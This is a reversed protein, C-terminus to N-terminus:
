SGGADTRIYLAYSYFHKLRSPLLRSLLTGSDEANYPGGLLVFEEGGVCLNEPMPNESKKRPFLISTHQPHIYYRTWVGFQREFGKLEAASCRGGGHGDSEIYRTRGQGFPKGLVVFSPTQMFKFAVSERSSSANLSPIQGNLMVRARSADAGSWAIETAILGYVLFWSLYISTILVTIQKHAELTLQRFPVLRAIFRYDSFSLWAVPIFAIYTYDSSRDAIYFGLAMFLGLALWKRHMILNIVVLLIIFLITWNWFLSPFSGGLIQTKIGALVGEVPFTLVWVKSAASMNKAWSFLTWPTALQLMLATIIISGALLLLSLWTARRLPYIALLLTIMMGITMLGVMPSTLLVLAASAMAVWLVSRLSGRIEYAVWPLVLLPTLLHEPRGQVGLQLMTPLIAAGAALPLCDNSSSRRLSRYLLFTMLLYTAVAVVTTALNYKAWSTTRFIYGYLFAQLIGHHDFMADPKWLMRDTYAGYRWGHGKAINIAATSYMPADIHLGPWEIRGFLVLTCVVVAMIVIGLWRQSSLVAAQRRLASYM